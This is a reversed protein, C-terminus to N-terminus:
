CLYLSSNPFKKSPGKSLYNITIKLANYVNVVNTVVLHKIKNTFSEFIESRSKFEGKGVEGGLSIQTLYFLFNTKDRILGLIGKSHRSAPLTRPSM